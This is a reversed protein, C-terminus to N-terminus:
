EVQASFSEQELLPKFADKWGSAIIANTWGVPEAVPALRPQMSLAHMMSAEARREASARRVDDIQQLYLLVLLLLLIKGVRGALPGLLGVAGLALLLHPTTRPEGVCNTPLLWRRLKARWGPRTARQASSSSEGREQAALSPVEGVGIRAEEDDHVWSSQGHLPQEKIRASISAPTETSFTLGERIGRVSTEFIRFTDPVIGIAESALRETTDGLFEAADGASRVVNAVLSIPRSILRRTARSAANETTTSAESQDGAVAASIGGLGSGMSRAAGGIVRITGGTGVAIADGVNRFASSTSQLAREM